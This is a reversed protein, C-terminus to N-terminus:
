NIANPQKERFSNVPVRTGEWIAAKETLERFTKYSRIREDVIEIALTREAPTSMADIAAKKDTTYTMHSEEFRSHSVYAQRLNAALIGDSDMLVIGRDITKGQGAHSTAAYGHSFQRFEPPIVRKDTLALIGDEQISEVQVINGNFLKHNPLNARILLREGVAVPLPRFLGVNFGYANTPDFIYHQGQEDRVVIKDERREEFIVYEGKAFGGSNQHFALVDGRQYNRAHRQEAQTWHYSRFANIVIDNSGLLGAAKLKPRLADTFRHIDSWVPSIVLCSKKERNTAVYDDAALIMLNKADPIEKVAGLRDFENFAMHAKKDALLSVAKRFAPDRQRLIKALRVITVNGYNQLARLADGAEVSSHQGIDGVLMLRNDNHSAVRCLDRMQRTSILGAEDVIIVRGKVRRQLENNILLQQLTDANATLRERLVETAGSSPACAFVDNGSKQIGDVVEKLILTKGAGAKGQLIVMPDQCFLIRKVADRYEGKLTSNLDRVKGLDSYRRKYTLTWDLYEREMLLTERSVIDDGTRILDGKKIRAEVEMKLEDLRVDGRGYILVERLMARADIVSNREFVHGQGLDVARTVSIQESERRQGNANAIIDEVIQLNSGSAERWLQRLKATEITVKPARTSGAIRQLADQSSAGLRAAQKKIEYRRKSFQERLAVPFGKIDFGIKATREIEYGAEIMQNALKNYCVERFYGQHRYYGLSQVSKWEREVDDYSLNMICIHTHLQPDLARSSDHTVMVAVMKNTYRNRDIIGGKRVRVATTANIEMITEHVADRWWEAIREDGGVLLAISVDKPPSIQGFYCVRRVSGAGRSLLNKGTVPHKGECLRTFDKEHVPGILGLKKAGEGIWQLEQKDNSSLYDKKAMHERFYSLGAAVKLCPYDFRVM